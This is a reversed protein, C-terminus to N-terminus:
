WAISSPKVTEDRIDRPFTQRLPAETGVSTPDKGEPTSHRLPLLATGCFFYVGRAITGLTADHQVM